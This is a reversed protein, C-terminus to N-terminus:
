SKVTRYSCSARKLEALNRVRYAEGQEPARVMVIGSRATIRLTQDDTAARGQTGDSNQPADGGPVLTLALETVRGPAAVSAFVNDGNPAFIALLWGPGPLRARVSVIGDEANFRCLAVQGDAGFFPLPQDKASIPALVTMANLKLTSALRDYGRTPSLLPSAFTVGIHLVVIASLGAALVRWNIRSFFSLFRM